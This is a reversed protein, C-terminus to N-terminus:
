NSLIEKIVDQIDRDNNNITKYNITDLNKPSNSEIDSVLRRNYEIENYSGRAKARKTREEVSCDIYFVNVNEEGVCKIFDKTGQADLVVVYNKDKSFEQKTLGYYWIAPINDVLTNYTRYEILSDSKILDLFEKTSIYWYDYGNKENVRIPRTTTSIILNYDYGKALIESIYTKGSSSMGVLIIINKIM